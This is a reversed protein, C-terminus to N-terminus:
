TEDSGVRVTGTIFDAKIRYAHGRKNMLIVSGGSSGGHAFFAMLFRGSAAEEDGSIGKQIWVGDPLYYHKLATRTKPTETEEENIEGASTTEREDPGITVRGRDLDFLAFYTITETAAQSRAYRLSAAVRKAATKLDMNTLSGALKPGVFGSVVGIIVLVVLLEILTFGAKHQRDTM